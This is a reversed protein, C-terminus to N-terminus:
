RRTKAELRRDHAPCEAVQGGPHCPEDDRVHAAAVGVDQRSGVEHELEAVADAQKGVAVIEGRMRLNKPSEIM